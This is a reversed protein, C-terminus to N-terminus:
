QVPELGVGPAETARTKVAKTPLSEPVLTIVILTAVGAIGALLWFMGRYGLDGVLLGSVTPGVASGFVLASGVLVQAEGVRRSDALRDTVWAAAVVAFLGQGLGDLVQIALVQEPTQAMALLALRLGAAAWGAVLLPKRGFRDALRGAPLVTLMWVPMSVVFAYALYQDAAELDSKLFLGLYVGAPANAVHFLVMAGIFAWLAGDIPRKKTGGNEVIPEPRARGTAPRHEHILLATVVALTQIITLPILLFAIGFRGSLFAGGLAVLVIAVPRWLRLTGLAAGVRGPEALRTAEAGAMSEITARCAGNEAFLVVLLGLWIPDHVTQLLGTALALLALAVVLILKRSNLRDSWIGVPYQVLGALAALTSVLGIDRDSMGEQRLYLPLYPLTFGIGSMGLFYAGYLGIRNRLDM